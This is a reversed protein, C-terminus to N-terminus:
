MTTYFWKAKLKEADGSFRSHKVRDRERDLASRQRPLDAGGGVGLARGLVRLVAHPVNEVDGRYRRHTAVGLSQLVGSGPSTQLASGLIRLAGLDQLVAFISGLAARQHSPRSGKGGALSRVDSM